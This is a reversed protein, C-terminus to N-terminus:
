RIRGLRVRGWGGVCFVVGSSHSSSFRRGPRVCVGSSASAEDDQVVARGEQPAGPAGAMAHRCM